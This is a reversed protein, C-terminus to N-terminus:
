FNPSDSYIYLDESIAVPPAPYDSNVARPDPVAPRFEGTGTARDMGDITVANPSGNLAPRGNLKHHSV